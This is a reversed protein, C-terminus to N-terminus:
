SLNFNIQIDFTNTLLVANYACFLRSLGSSDWLKPIM